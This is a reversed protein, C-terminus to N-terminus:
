GRGDACVVRFHTSGGKTGLRTRVLDGSEFGMFVAVPDTRLLEFV